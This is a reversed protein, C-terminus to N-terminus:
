EVTITGNGHYEMVAKIEGKEHNFGYNTLTTLLTLRQINV